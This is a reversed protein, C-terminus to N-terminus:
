THVSAIMKKLSDPPISVSSVETWNIVIPDTGAFQCAEKLIKITAPMLTTDKFVAQLSPNIHNLEYNIWTSLCHM